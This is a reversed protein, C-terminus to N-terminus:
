QETGPTRNAAVERYIEVIRQVIMEQRLSQRKERGDSRRGSELVPLMHVALEKALEARPSVGNSSPWPVVAGPHIGELMERADGVEVSVVPLGVALAEKVVTPSGESGRRSTFLLCSAANLKLVVREYAQGIESLILEQVRPNKAQVLALVERFLGYDKVPNDPSGGFLIWERSPDLGLKRCALERDLPAVVDFDVGNPIVENRSSPWRNALNASVFIRRSARGLSAKSVWRQLPSNIDSGYLTAVVPATRPLLLSALGTLGYHVHALDYRGAEWRQKIRSNAALYDLRGKDQAVVELSADVAPHSAVAKWLQSVFIGRFSPAEPRHFM